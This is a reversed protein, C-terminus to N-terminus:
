AGLECPVLEIRQLEDFAQWFDELIVDPPDFDFHWDMGIELGSFDLDIGPLEYVFDVMDDIALDDVSFDPGIASLDIPGLGVVNILPVDFNTDIAVVEYADSIVDVDPLDIEYSDFSDDSESSSPILSTCVTWDSPIGDDDGSVAGSLSEGAAKGLTIGIGTGTVVAEAVTRAGPLGVIGRRVARVGLGGGVLSLTLGLADWMLDGLTIEDRTFLIVGISFRLASLATSVALLGGIILPLAALLAGGTLICALVYAVVLVIALGILLVDLADYLAQLVETPLVFLLGALGGISFAAAYKIFEAVFGALKEIWSPDALVGVDVRKLENATRENLEQEDSALDRLEAESARANDNARDLRNKAIARLDELGDLECRLQVLEDSEWIPTVLLQGRKRWVDGDVDDYAADARRQENWNTEARAVASAAARQLQTLRVKHDGFIREVQGAIDPVEGILPALKDLNERFTDAAEGRFNSSTGNAISRLDSEINETRVKITCFLRELRAFEHVNGHIPNEAM